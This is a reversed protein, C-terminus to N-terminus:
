WCGGYGDYVGGCVCSAVVTAMETVEASSDVDLMKEVHRLITLRDCSRGSFRRPAEAPCFEHVSGHACPQIAWSASPFSLCLM